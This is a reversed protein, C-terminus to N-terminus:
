AAVIWVAKEPGHLCGHDADAGTQPMYSTGTTM